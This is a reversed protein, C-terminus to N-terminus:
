QHLSGTELPAVVINKRHDLRFKIVESALCETMRVASASGSPKMKVARHTLEWQHHRIRNRM